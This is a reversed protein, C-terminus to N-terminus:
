TVEYLHKWQALSQPSIAYGLTDCISPLLHGKLTMRVVAIKIGPSYSVFVM